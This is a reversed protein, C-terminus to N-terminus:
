YLKILETSDTWVQGEKLVLEVYFKRPIKNNVNKWLLLDVYLPFNNKPYDENYEANPYITGNEEIPVSVYNYNGPFYVFCKNLITGKPYNTNFSDTSTIKIKTIPNENSVSSEYSDFYRGKRYTEVSHLNLRIGYVNTPISDSYSVQPLRGSYNINEIDLSTFRYKVTQDGECSIILLFLTTLIFFNKM